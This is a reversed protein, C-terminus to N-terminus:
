TGPAPEVGPLTVHFASGRGPTSDVWLRGGHQEAVRRCVALGIGSGPYGDADPLRGFLPWIAEARDPDIGIGNDQVTLRWWPAGGPAAAAQPVATVTVEAPRGPAAFKVANGM